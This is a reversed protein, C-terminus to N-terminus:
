QTKRNSLQLFEKHIITSLERNSPHTNSINVRNTAQRKIKRSTTYIYEKGRIILETENLNRQKKWPQSM